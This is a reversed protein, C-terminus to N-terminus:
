FDFTHISLSLLVTFSILKYYNSLTSVHPFIHPLCNLMKYLFLCVVNIKLKEFLYAVSIKKVLSDPIQIVNKHSNANKFCFRIQSLGLNVSRSTQCTVRYLRVCYPRLWMRDLKHRPVSFLRMYLFQVETALVVSKLLMIKSKHQNPTM